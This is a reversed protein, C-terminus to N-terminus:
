YELKEITEYLKDLKSQEIKQMKAFSSATKDAKSKAINNIISYFGIGYIKDIDYRIGDFIVDLMEASVANQSYKTKCLTEYYAKLSTDTSACSLAELMFGSFEPTKTTIPIAFFQSMPDPMTYYKKQEENLKPFPIVTYDFDAEASRSKLGHPFGTSFMARGDCFTKFAFDWYDYDVKGAFDDCFGATNTNCISALLKEITDYSHQSNYSAEFKGESNKTYCANEAATWFANFSNYSDMAIGWCDSATITGDGDLDKSAAESYEQMRDLTWKGERIIPILDDLNNAKVLEPNYYFIYTRSKDRLSFDSTTFYVKGGISTAENVDPNWYPKSFDIYQVNSMNYLAGQQASTGVHQLEIFALDFRDEGAAVDQALIAQTHHETPDLWQEFKVNYKETLQDNRKYIADNLVEGNMGEVLIEFNGFQWYVAGADGLVRFTKGDWNTDPLDTTVAPETVPTTDETVPAATTTEGSAPNPAATTDNSPAPPTKEGCAALPLLMLAALILCLIKRLM